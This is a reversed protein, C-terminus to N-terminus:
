CCLWWSSKRKETKQEKDTKQNKESKTPSYKASWEVFSYTNGMSKNCSGCIPILNSLITPGGHSEPINHGAEFSFPTVTNTCWVTPCKARFQEGFHNLWVQNRLATPIKKKKYLSLKTRNAM